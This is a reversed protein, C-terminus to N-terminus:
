DSSSIAKPSTTADLNDVIGDSNKKSGLTDGVQVLKAQCSRKNKWAWHISGAVRFIYSVKFTILLPEFIIMKINNCESSNLNTICM